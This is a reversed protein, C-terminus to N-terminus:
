RHVLKYLKTVFQILGIFELDLSIKYKKMEKQEDKKGTLVTATSTAM